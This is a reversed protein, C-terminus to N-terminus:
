PPGWSYNNGNINTSIHGFQSEGVGVGHWYVIETYLGLPDMYSLPNGGVYAYTNIGGQLGIPDSEVYRGIMPDYYRAMNYFLGTEGDAVQGPFRLNQVFAGLGAPNTEPVATGFPDAIWRWRLNGATDTVVRPTNLHDTHIYYVIPAASATAGPTFMAVPVDDLWIYERLAAGSKDYEGM